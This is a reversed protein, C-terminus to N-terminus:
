LIKIERFIEEQDQDNLIFRDWINIRISSWLPIQIENNNYDVVTLQVDTIVYDGTEIEFMDTFYIYMWMYDDPNLYNVANYIDQLHKDNLIWHKMISSELTIHSKKRLQDEPCPYSKWDEDFLGEFETYKEYEASGYKINDRTPQFLESLEYYPKNDEGVIQNLITVQMKGKYKDNIWVRDGVNFKFTVLEKM